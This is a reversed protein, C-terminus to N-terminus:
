SIAPTKELIDDLGQRIYCLIVISLLSDRLPQQFYQIFFKWSAL